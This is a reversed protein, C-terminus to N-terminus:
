AVAASVFLAANAATKKQDFYSSVRVVDTEEELRRFTQAYQIANPVRQWAFTYGASPTMLAPSPSVWAMLLHKGWIRSYSVSAEATGEKDTTYIGRGVLLKEFTLLSALLDVNVQGKQTYKILDIVDPHNLLQVLVQKGMVARNPERGIKGEVLDKYNAIDVVPSSGGYNSWVTFDTGGVKDTGWVGTTFFDTAFAVDRRMQIKDTCFETAERDLDFPADANDRVEDPITKSMAYRPCFYTDSTDVKYGAEASRAGPALIRADDRFWYSQPYSPVIDSQKMVPVIPFIEDAIYQANKYAISVNTLPRNVHVDQSTPLPM